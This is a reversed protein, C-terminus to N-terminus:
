TSWSATCPATFVMRELRQFGDGIVAPDVPIGDGAAGVQASFGELQEGACPDVDVVDVARELTLPDVFNAAEHPTSCSRTWCISSL